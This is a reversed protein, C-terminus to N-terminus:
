PNAARIPLGILDWPGSGTATGGVTTTASTAQLHLAGKDGYTNGYPTETAWYLTDDNPTYILNTSRDDYDLWYLVLDNNQDTHVSVSPNGGHGGVHACTDFPTTQDVNDLVIGAYQRDASSPYNIVVDHTGQDPALLYWFGYYAETGLGHCAGYAMSVGNYTASTDEGGSDAGMPVILM